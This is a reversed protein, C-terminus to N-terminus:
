EEETKKEVVQEKNEEILVCDKHYDSKDESCNYYGEKIQDKSIMKGCRDCGAVGSRYTTTTILSLKHGNDCTSKKDNAKEQLIIEFSGNVKEEFITKVKDISDKPGTLVRYNDYKGIFNATKPSYRMQLVLVCFARSMDQTLKIM